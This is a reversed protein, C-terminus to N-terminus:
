ALQLEGKTEHIESISAMLLQTIDLEGAVEKLIEAQQQPTECGQLVQRIQKKALENM